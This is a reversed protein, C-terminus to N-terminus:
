QRADAESFIGVLRGSEVVPLRRVQHQAVKMLAQDLDESPEVAVVNSSAIEGVTVSSPDRGEALVRAVLDRDTVIGVLQEGEVVPLPGVDERTMLKAAEVATTSPEVTVPTSTMVDKIQPM